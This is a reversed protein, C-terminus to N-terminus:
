VICSTKHSCGYLVDLKIAVVELREKPLAERPREVFEENDGAPMSSGRVVWKGLSSFFRSVAKDSPPVGKSGNGHEKQLAQWCAQAPAPTFAAVAPEPSDRCCFYFQQSM